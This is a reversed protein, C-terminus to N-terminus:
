LKLYWFHGKLNVEYVRDWDAEAMDLFPGDISLGASNVLIDVNGFADVTAEVMAGVQKSQRPLRICTTLASMLVTLESVGLLKAALVVALM